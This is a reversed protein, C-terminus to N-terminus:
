INTYDANAMNLPCVVFVFVMFCSVLRSMKGKM